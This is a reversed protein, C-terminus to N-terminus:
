PTRALARRDVDRRREGFCHSFDQQLAQELAQFMKLGLDGECQIRPPVGREAWADTSTDTDLELIPPTFTKACAGGRRVPHQRAADCSQLSSLTGVVYSGSVLMRFYM